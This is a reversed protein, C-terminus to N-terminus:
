RTPSEVVEVETVTVVQPARMNECMIRLRAPQGAHAPYWRMVRGTGWDPHSKVRVIHSLWEQQPHDTGDTYYSRNGAM